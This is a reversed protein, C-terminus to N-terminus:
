IRLSAVSFEVGREMKSSWPSPFSTQFFTSAPLCTFLSRRSHSQDIVKLGAGNREIGPNKDVKDLLIATEKREHLGQKFRDIAAIKPSYGGTETQHFNQHYRVPGAIRRKGLPILSQQGVASTQPKNFDITAKEFSRRLKSCCEFELRRIRDLHRSRQHTAAVRKQCVVASDGSYRTQFDKLHFIIELSSLSELNWSRLVAPHPEFDASGKLKLSTAETKM